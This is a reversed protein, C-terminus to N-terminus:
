CIRDPKKDTTYCSWNHSRLDMKRRQNDPQQCPRNGYLVSRFSTRRRPSAMWCSRFNAPKGFTICFGFCCFLRSNRGSDALKCCAYIAFINRRSHDRYGFNRWYKRFRKWFLTKFNRGLQGTQSVGFSNRFKYRRYKFFNRIADAEGSIRISYIGFAASKGNQAFMVGVAVMWLPIAPPLILPFLLGTVLFGENIEEKRVVAFLVEILGGAAYSVFIVALVRLGFFYVALAVCPALAVIVM